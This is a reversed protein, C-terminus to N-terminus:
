NQEASLAFVERTADVSAALKSKREIIQFIRQDISNRYELVYILLPTERPGRIARRFAQSFTTDMYDLSAFVMTDVHSWNFGVDAVVPSCVLVQYKGERFAKEAEMRKKGTVNGNILAVTMGTAQVQRYIREQEPVLSAFIVLPKGSREHDDLHIQLREDKGTPTGPDIGYTEPHALLQRCRIAFVGGTAGTLFSDELELLAKDAFEDYAAKQKPSMECLENIILKAEKGHVSEFSRRSCYRGLIEALHGPNKWAVVTGYDDQVAHTNLFGQYSGYHRPEIVHIVPYASDLRGSILTGTMAVFRPTNKMFKYLAQTTASQNTTWYKHTEDGVLAGARPLEKHSLRFRTPGMLYVVIGPRALEKKWNPGDVMAIQEPRINSFVLLEDFNKQLIAKPMVWVTPLGTERFIWEIYVCVTPTKGTGPDNLLGGKPTAMRLALDAVQDTRLPLPM